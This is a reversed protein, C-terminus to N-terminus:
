VELDPTKDGVYKIVDFMETIANPCDTFDWRREIPTTSSTAFQENVADIYFTMTGDDGQYFHEWVNSPLHDKIHLQEIALCDFSVVKFAELILPLMDETEKLHKDVSKNYHDYYEQGRRLRKYGLFLIKLDHHTMLRGLDEQTLIGAIVHLVANPFEKMAEFLKEDYYALSVGIGWILKKKVLWRILNLNEMFHIQNVTINAFVKQTRLRELLSFFDPHEFVNGGGCNHTLWFGNVPFIHSGSDLTIDYLTKVGAESINKVKDIKRSHNRNVIKYEKYVNPFVAKLDELGYIEVTYYDSSKLIRNEIKRQPSIGHYISAHVGFWRAMLFTVEYALKRSTTKLSACYNEKGKYIRTRFCGDGEYLGLLASRIFDINDISFLYSLSKNRAGYGVKLAKIFFADIVSTDSLEICLSNKETNKYMHSSLNFTNDWIKEITDAIHQENINLVLGKKSGEAVFWGYLYMIDKNINIYRPITHGNIVLTISTDNDERGGRSYPKTKDPRHIFPKLDITTIKRPYENSDKQLKDIPENTLDMALIQENNSIFPHDTSACVNLGRQGKINIAEKNTQVIKTIRRLVYDKDYIYDGIKLEDIRIAGKNNYVYTDGSLCAIETYPKLTDIWPQNLLNEAIKGDKTSGEHCVLCGIDCRDSIKVDLNEPYDFRFEDDESYRIVTGDDFRIVNVNGNQYEAIKTRM